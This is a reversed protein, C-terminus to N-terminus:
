DHEDKWSLDQVMWAAMWEDSGASASERHQAVAQAEWVPIANASSISPSQRALGALSAVLIAAAAAASAWALRRIGAAPLSDAARHLRGLVGHPMQAPALRGLIRSLARVRELEARCRSCQRLHLEFEARSDPAMEGDHYAGIRSAQECENM